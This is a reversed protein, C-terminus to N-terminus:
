PAPPPVKVCFQAGDFTEHGLLTVTVNSLVNEQFCRPTGAPPTPVKFNVQYLGAYNPTLGAFVAQDLVVTASALGPRAPTANPTFDFAITLPFPRVAPPLPAPSGAPVIPDTGDLGFAYLVLIEGPQAANSGGQVLTGDAHTVRYNCFALPSPRIPDCDTLVHINDHYLIYAFAPGPAGNESVVLEQRRNRDPPSLPQSFSLGTPVQITLAILRCPETTISGPLAGFCGTTLKRVALIPVPIPDVDSFQRFTVSLGALTTPLPFGGAGQYDPLTSKVDRLFLTTIQGPALIIAAPDVYGAGVISVGSQAVLLSAGVLLAIFLPTIRPNM